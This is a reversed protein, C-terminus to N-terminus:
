FIFAPSLVAVCTSSQSTSFPSSGEYKEDFSDPSPPSTISPSSPSEGSAPDTPSEVDVSLPRRTKRRDTSEVTNQLQPSEKKDPSSQPSSAGTSSLMNTLLVSAIDADEDNNAVPTSIEGHRRKQGRKRGSDAPRARDTARAAALDERPQTMPKTDVIPLPTPMMAPNFTPISQLYGMRSMAALQQQQQQMFMAASFLRPDFPSFGFAAYPYMAGSPYPQM